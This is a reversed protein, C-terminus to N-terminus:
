YARHVFAHNYIKEKTTIDNLNSIIIRINKDTCRLLSAEIGGIKNGFTVMDMMFKLLHAVCPIIKDISTDKYLSPKCHKYIFEKSVAKGLEKSANIVADQVCSRYNTTREQKNHKNFM